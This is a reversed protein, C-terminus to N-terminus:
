KEFYFEIFAGNMLRIAFHPTVDRWNCMMTAVHQGGQTVFLSLNMSINAYIASVDISEGDVLTMSEKVVLNNSEPHSSFILEQLKEAKAEALVQFVTIKM